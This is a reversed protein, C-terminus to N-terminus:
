VEAELCAAEYPSSLVMRVGDVLCEGARCLAQFVKARVLYVENGRLFFSVGNVTCTGKERRMRKEVFDAGQEPTHVQMENIGANSM